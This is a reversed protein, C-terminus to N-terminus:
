GLANPNVEANAADAIGAWASLTALSATAAVAM